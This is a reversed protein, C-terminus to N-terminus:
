RFGVTTIARYAALYGVILAGYSLVALAVSLLHFVLGLRRRWINGPKRVVWPSELTKEVHDLATAYFYQAFYASGTGLCAFLLAAGIRSLPWPLWSALEINHNAVMSGMFALM